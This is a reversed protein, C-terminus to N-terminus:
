MPGNGTEVDVTKKPCKEAVVAVAKAKGTMLINLGSEM